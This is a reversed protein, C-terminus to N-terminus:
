LSLITQLGQGLSYQLKFAFCVLSALISFRSKHSRKVLCLFNYLNITFMARINTKTENGKTCLSPICADSIHYGVLIARWHIKRMQHKLTKIGTAVCSDSDSGVRLPVYRTNISCNGRCGTSQHKRKKTCGHPM